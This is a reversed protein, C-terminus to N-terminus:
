AYKINRAVEECEECVCKLIKEPENKYPVTKTYVTKGCWRCACRLIAVKKGM